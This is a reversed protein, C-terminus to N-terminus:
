VLLAKRVMWEPVRVTHCADTSEIMALWDEPHVKDKSLWLKNNLNLVKVLVAQGGTISVFKNQPKLKKITRKNRNWVKKDDAKERVIIIPVYTKEMWCLKLDRWVKHPVEGALSGFIKACSATTAVERMDHTLIAIKETGMSSAWSSIVIGHDGPVGKVQNGFRGRTKKTIWVLDDRCIKGDNNRKAILSNIESVNNWEPEKM